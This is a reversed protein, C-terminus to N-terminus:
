INRINDFFTIPQPTNQDDNHGLGLQGNYNLGCSFFRNHETQFITHGIGAVVSIIMEHDFEKEPIKRPVNRTVNDGLGLQGYRNDGCVFVRGSQTVFVSHTAGVAVARIAEGGFSEMSIVTPTRQDRVEGLGLQGSSNDGCVFVRGSQTIFVSHKYGAAVAIIEENGFSTTSIEKLSDEVKQDPLGSQGGYNDRCVFVRGSRTIFVSYKYGAAVAIIEENGFSKKSIEELTDGVKQDCSSSQGGSNDRRVFVRSSQTVLVCHNVGAAVAKIQDNHYERMPYIRTPHPDNFCRLPSIRDLGWVLVHGKQTVFISYYLGAAVAEIEENYLQPPCFDTPIVPWEFPGNYSYAGFLFVKNGRTKIITLRGGAAMKFDFGLQRNQPSPRVARADIADFVNKPITSIM